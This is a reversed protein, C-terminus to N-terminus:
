GTDGWFCSHFGELIGRRDDRVLLGLAKEKLLLHGLATPDSSTNEM